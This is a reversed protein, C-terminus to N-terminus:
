TRIRTCELHKSTRYHFYIDIVLTIHLLASVPKLDVLQIGSAINIAPQDVPSEGALASSSRNQRRLRGHHPVVAQELDGNIFQLSLAHFYTFKSNRM